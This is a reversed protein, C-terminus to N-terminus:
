KKPVAGKLLKERAKYDPLVSAVLAYFDKSHNMYRLHALEHAVVYDIAEEPFLMLYCSFTIRKDSTCCGFRTKARGIRISAPSLRMAASYQAIKAPLVANARAALARIEAPDDSFAPLASMKGRSKEIWREEKQIFEEIRKKPTGYPARVILRGDRAIQLALTKRGSYLVEYDHTM